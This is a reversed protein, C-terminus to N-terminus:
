RCSYLYESNIYNIIIPDLLEQTHMYNFDQRNIWRDGTQIRMCMMHM